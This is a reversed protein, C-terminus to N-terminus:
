SRRLASGSSTSAITSACTKPCAATEGRSAPRGHPPAPASAGAPSRARAPRIPPQPAALHGRPRRAAEGNAVTGPARDRSRGGGKARAAPDPLKVPKGPVLWDRVVAGERAKM